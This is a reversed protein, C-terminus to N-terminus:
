IDNIDNDIEEELDILYKFDLFDDLINYDIYWDRGDEYEDYDISNKIKEFSKNNLELYKEVIYLLNIDLINNMDEVEKKIFDYFMEADDWIDDTFFYNDYGDKEITELTSKLYKDIQEYTLPWNIKYDCGDIIGCIEFNYLRELIKEEVYKKLEETKIERIMKMVTNLVAECLTLHERNDKLYELNIM